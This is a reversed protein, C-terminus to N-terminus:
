FTCCCFIVYYKFFFDAGHLSIEATKKQGSWPATFMGHRHLSLWQFALLIIVLLLYNEVPAKRKGIHKSLESVAELNLLM